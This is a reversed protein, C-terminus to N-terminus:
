VVQIRFAHHCDGFRIRLHHDTNFARVVASGPPRRDIMWGIIGGLVGGALWAGGGAMLGLVFGAVAGVLWMM